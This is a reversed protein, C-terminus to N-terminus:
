FLAEEVENEFTDNPLKKLLSKFSLEEFLKNVKEKDYDHIVCGPLDLEIPVDRIITALYKSQIASEKNQTLKKLTAGKLVLEAEQSLSKGREKNAISQYIAEISGFVQLLQVATKPGIGKVGPINDSNDGALGKYDAVQGPNIGMKKVVQTEDYFIPEKKAKAPVYVRVEGREQLTDVLQLADLDGTVIIVELGKQKGQESLTGIVDDAEYGQATVVPVNLTEVVEFTRPVQSKFDDPTQKRKAKYGEYEEHRFTKGVDFSVALYAPELDRIVSLLINTFGYVANILEGSATTLPPYAYYARFLLAHGDILVLRNEM